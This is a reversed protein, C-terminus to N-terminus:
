AAAILGHTIMADRLASQRFNFVESAILKGESGDEFRVRRWVNGGPTRQYTEIVTVRYVRAPKKHDDHEPLVAFRIDDIM